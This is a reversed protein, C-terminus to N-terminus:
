RWIAPLDGAYVNQALDKTPDPTLGVDFYLSVRGLLHDGSILLRREPQHLCVHSPAHGPTEYVDFMGLDTEVRVGPLLERDPEVIRAIGVPQAKRQESYRQLAEVPM